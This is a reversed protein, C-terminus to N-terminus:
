IESESLLELAFLSFMAAPFFDSSSFVSFISRFKLFITVFQLGQPLVIAYYIAIPFLILNYVAVRKDFISCYCLHPFFLM